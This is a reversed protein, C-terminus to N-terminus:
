SWAAGLDRSADAGGISRCQPRMWAGTSAPLSPRPTSEPCSVAPADLWPPRRSMTEPLLWARGRWHYRLCGATPALIVLQRPQHTGRGRLRRLIAAWSTGITEVNLAESAHEASPLLRVDKLLAHWSTEREARGDSLCAPRRAEVGLRGYARLLHAHPMASDETGSGVLCDAREDRPLQLHRLYVSADLLPRRRCTMRSPPREHATIVSKAVTIRMGSWSCFGSVAELLRSMGEM